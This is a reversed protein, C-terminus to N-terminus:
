TFITCKYKYYDCYCLLYLYTDQKESPYTTLLFDVRIAKIYFFLFFSFVKALYSGINNNYNNYVCTKITFLTIM